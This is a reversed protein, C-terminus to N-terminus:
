LSADDDEGAMTDPADPIADVGSRPPPMETDPRPLTAGAAYWADFDAHGAMAMGQPDALMAADPSRAPDAPVTDPLGSDSLSEVAVPDDDSVGSGTEVQSAPKPAPWFVTLLVAVAIGAAVAVVGRWPPLRWIRRARRRRRSAADAADGNRGAPAPMAAQPAPAPASASVSVSVSVPMPPDPRLGTLAASRLRAIATLREPPLGRLHAQLAEALERWAAADPQGGADRPCADALLRRYGDADTALVAAAEDEPLGAVLRLLLGLRAPMPVTALHRCPGDWRADRAPQRMAPTAALLKWFRAPWDAMPWDPAQTRFARLAGTLARDAGDVSGCQAWALLWARREVGQLFAALAAPAENAESM